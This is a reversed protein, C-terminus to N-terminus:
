ELDAMKSNVLSSAIAEINSKNREISGDSSFKLLNPQKDSIIFVFKYRTNMFLQGVQRNSLVKNNNNKQAVELMANWSEIFASAENNIKANAYDMPSSYKAIDVPFNLHYVFHSLAFVTNNPRIDDSYIVDYIRDKKLEQLFETTIIIKSGSIFGGFVSVMNNNKIEKNGSIEKKNAIIFGTFKGSESLKNFESILTPSVNIAGVIQDYNNSNTSVKLQELVLNLKSNETKQVGCNALLFVSLLAIFIKYLNKM